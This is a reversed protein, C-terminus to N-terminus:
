YAASYNNEKTQETYKAFYNYNELNNEKIQYIPVTREERNGKMSVTTDNQMKPMPNCM